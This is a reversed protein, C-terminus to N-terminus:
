VLEAEKDEAPPYFNMQPHMYISHYKICSVRAINYTAHLKLATFLVYPMRPEHWSFSNPKNQTGNVVSKDTHKLFNRHM